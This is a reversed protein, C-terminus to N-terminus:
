DLQWFTIALCTIFRYRHRQPSESCVSFESTTEYIESYM